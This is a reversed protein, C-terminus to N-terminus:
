IPAFAEPQHHKEATPFSNTAMMMMMMMMMMMPASSPDFASSSRKGWCAAVTLIM